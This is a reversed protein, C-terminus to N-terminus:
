ARSEAKKAKNGNKSGVEVMQVQTQYRKGDLSMKGTGFFGKSGTKFRKPEAELVGVIQGQEDQITIRV